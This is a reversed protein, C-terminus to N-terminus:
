EEKTKDNKLFFNMISKYDSFKEESKTVLELLKDTLQKNDKVLSRNWVIFYVLLSGLVFLLVGTSNEPTTNLLKESIDQIQLLM